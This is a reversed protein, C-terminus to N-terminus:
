GILRYLGLTRQCRHKPCVQYACVNCEQRLGTTSFATSDCVLWDLLCTPGNWTTPVTRISGSCQGSVAIFLSELLRIANFASRNRVLSADLPPVSRRLRNRENGPSVDTNRYNRIIGSNTRRRVDPL